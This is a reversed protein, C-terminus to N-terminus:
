TLMAPKPGVLMEVFNHLHKVRITFKIKWVGVPLVAKEGNDIVWSWIIQQFLTKIPGALVANSDIAAM